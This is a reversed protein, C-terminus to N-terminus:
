LNFDSASVIFVFVVYRPHFIIFVNEKSVYTVGGEYMYENGSVKPVAFIRDGKRVSPRKELLGPLQILM